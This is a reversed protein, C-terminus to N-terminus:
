EDGEEMTDLAAPELRLTEYGLRRAVIRYDFAISCTQEDMAKVTFAQATKEAVYLACDGLPTLFVHYTETLNVTQAFIPEITVTARGNVLQAAGFDEFWNEPSEVAYLKRQGYDTTTVVASKTGIATMDGNENVAFVTTNAGNLIWFSGTEDNNNDLDIQVADNSLLFLDSSAYAPDSTIRGDDSSDSSGGM